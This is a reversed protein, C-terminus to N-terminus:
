ETAVINKIWIGKKVLLLGLISKIVGVSNCIIYIAYIDLATFRTLLFALPMPVILIFVCDFLVTVLMKGGSRLIFYSTNAISELPMVVASIRMLSVAMRRVDGSTNYFEALAPASFFFIASVIICIILSFVTLRGANLQATDLKGAGLQQGLIIGAAVGISLFSVSLVNWFTDQINIAAVVALGRTSYSQRLLALGVSWLTENLLLPLSKKLVNVFLRWPVRLSRLAGKIFPNQEAHTHTYVAVIALETFRSIVTATAAGAAGMKPAGFNGFILVFNLFLNVFVAIVGALMPMFARGTERLTGSYGQTMAFPLFGILMIFLYERGFGLAAAADTPDGEGLLFSKIMAGGFLLFVAAGLAAVSLSFVMKIRFTNRLGKVDGKGFFQAGFIGAGSMTGFVCLNFVLILQNSVAVGTLPVTGVQGIMINDLMGVFTTIGNQIMIPVAISLLYRYFGKDGIFRRINM